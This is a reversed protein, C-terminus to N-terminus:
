TTFFIISFDLRQHLWVNLIQNSFTLILLSNLNKIIFDLGAKINKLRINKWAITHSLHINHVNRCHICDYLLLREVLLYFM